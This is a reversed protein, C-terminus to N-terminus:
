FMNELSTPKESAKKIRVEMGKLNLFVEKEARMLRNAWPGPPMMALDEPLNPNIRVEVVVSRGGAEIEVSDGERVGLRAAAKESLFVVAVERRFEESDISQYKARGQEFTRVVVLRLTPYLLEILSM